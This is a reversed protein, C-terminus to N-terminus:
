RNVESWDGHETTTQFGAPPPAPTAHEECSVDVAFPPAACPCEGEAEGHERLPEAGASAEDMSRGADRLSLETRPPEDDELDVTMGDHPPEGHESRDDEFRDDRMARALVGMHFMVAIVHPTGTEPDIDEGQAFQALHRFAAGISLSMPYGREWNREEYKRAGKGYHEALQWLVDWPLLDFRALKRGKRGGTNEDTVIRETGDENM